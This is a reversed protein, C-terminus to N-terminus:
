CDLYRLTGNTVVVQSLQEDGYKAVNVIEFKDDDSLSDLMWIIKNKLNELDACDFLDLVFVTLRPLHPDCGGNTFFIAFHQEAQVVGVDDTENMVSYFM